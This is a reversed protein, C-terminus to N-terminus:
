CIRDQRALWKIGCEKECKFSCFPFAIYMSPKKYNLFDTPVICKGYKSFVGTHGVNDKVSFHGREYYCASYKAPVIIKGSPTKAGIRGYELYPSWKFGDAETKVSQANVCIGVCFM